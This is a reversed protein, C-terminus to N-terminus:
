SEWFDANKINARKPNFVKGKNKEYDKFCRFVIPSLLVIAILNVWMSIGIGVDAFAWVATSELIGGRFIFALFIFSLLFKLFRSKKGKLIYLLNTEAIYYYTIFSTYAFFFILISVIMPGYNSFVTSVAYITFDVAKLASPLHEVLYGGSPNLVYYSNTTLIMLATLTNILLTDIYISFSQVFGQEAPHKTNAAASASVSTGLGAETSFVGRRVGFSVAYGFLGAFIENVGFASYFILSFAHPIYSANIVIIIIAIIIFSLAMVPIVFNSFKTFHKIGGRILPVLSLVVLFAVLFPSVGFSAELSTTITNAQIGPLFIIYALIISMAYIIGYWRANLGKEIYYSPGGRYNKEEDEVKYIQGLISESFSIAAGLFATVWMWFVAGPGGISIAAAVGVINGTGLRSSLTLMLSSLPSIGGKKAKSPKNVSHTIMSKFHRIQMFKTGLTLYVGCGIFFIILPSAWLFNAINNM